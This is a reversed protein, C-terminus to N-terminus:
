YNEDRVVGGYTAYIAKGSSTTAFFLTNLRQSMTPEKNSVTVTLMDGKSMKYVGTGKSTYVQELIQETYFIDTVTETSVAKGTGDFVPVVNDHSHVIKIDYLLNTTDLSQVFNMYSDPTIKGQKITEEVFSVTENYVVGQVISDQRQSHTIMPALFLIIIALGFTVLKVFNNM